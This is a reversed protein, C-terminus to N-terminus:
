FAYEVTIHEYKQRLQNLLNAKSQALREVFDSDDITLIYIKVTIQMGQKFIMIDLDDDHHNLTPQLISLISQKIEQDSTTANTLEKFSSILVLFPEKISIIVLLLTIFFDGTYHLFGFTGNVDVFYLILVAAGIGLSIAGDVFNGKTESTIITSMNNIQKNKKSNYFALLFCMAGTIITYPLVPGAEIPHGYNNVFYAYATASTEMLTIFLLVFIAISKILAYLPELFFLGQPFSSTQRHSYKSIFYGILSSLFAILSFVSDLLLANLDTIIYVALGALGTLANVTASVLLSQKEIKRQNM